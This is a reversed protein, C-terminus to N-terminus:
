TGEPKKLYKAPDAKFKADCGPCCFYYTKGEHEAKPSSDTVLFEENSVLCNSKDGITAEGPAKFVASAPIPTPPPHDMGGHDMGGHHAAETADAPPAAPSSGCAALALTLAALLLTTKM